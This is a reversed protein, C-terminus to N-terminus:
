TDYFQKIRCLPGFQTSGDVGQEFIKQEKLVQIALFFVIPSPQASKMSSAHNGVIMADNSVNSCRPKDILPAHWKEKNSPNQKM